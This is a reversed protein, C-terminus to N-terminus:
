PVRKVAQGSVHNQHKPTGLEQSNISQPHAIDWSAAMGANHVCEVTHTENTTAMQTQRARHTRRCFRHQKADGDCDRDIGLWNRVM